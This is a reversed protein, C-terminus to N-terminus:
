VVVKLLRIIQQPHIIISELQVRLARGELNNSHFFKGIMIMGQINSGVTIVRKAIVNLMIPLLPMQFQWAILVCQLAVPAPIDLQANNAGLQPINQRTNEGVV